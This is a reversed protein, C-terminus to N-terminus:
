NENQRVGYKEVVPMILASGYVAYFKMFLNKLLFLEWDIGINPLEPSSAYDILKIFEFLSGGNGRLTCTM